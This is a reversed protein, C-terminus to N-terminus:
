REKEVMLLGIGSTLRLRTNALRSAVIRSLRKMVEFGLVCDDAILKRFVDGNIALVSCHSMCRASLTYVYPEVLASWGLIEGKTVLEVATPIGSRDPVPRVEMELAVEGQSLIYLERADDGEKFIKAGEMYSESRCRDAVKQLHGEDFGTFLESAKLTDIVDM